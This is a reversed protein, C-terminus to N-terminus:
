ISFRFVWYLEFGLLVLFGTPKAEKFFPNKQIRTKIYFEASSRGRRKGNVYEGFLEFSIQKAALVESSKQRNPATCISM